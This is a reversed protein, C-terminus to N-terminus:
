YIEELKLLLERYLNLIEKDRLIYPMLEKSYARYYRIKALKINRLLDMEEVMNYASEPYQLKNIAKEEEKKLLALVKIYKTTNPQSIIKNSMKGFRLFYFM